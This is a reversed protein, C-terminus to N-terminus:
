RDFRSIDTPSITCMASALADLNGTALYKPICAAKEQYRASLDNIDVFQLSKNPCAEVCAPMEGRAVKDICLDCKIPKRTKENFSIAGFPCAMSCLGCGMCRNADIVVAEGQLRIARAPCVAMCRADSCHMCRMPTPLAGVMMISCAPKGQHAEVEACRAMCNGCGWCRGPEYWVARRPEM